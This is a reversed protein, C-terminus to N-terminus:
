PRCQVLGSQGSCTCRAHRICKLHVCLAFLLLSVQYKENVFAVQAPLWQPQSACLRRRFHHFLHRWFWSPYLASVWGAPSMGGHGLVGVPRKLISTAKGKSLAPLEEVDSKAQLEGHEANACTRHKLFLLIMNWNVFCNRLLGLLCLISGAVWMCLQAEELHYFWLIKLRSIFRCMELSYVRSHKFLM